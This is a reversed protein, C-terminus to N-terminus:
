YILYCIKVKISNPNYSDTSFVADGEKPMMDFVKKYILEFTASIDRLMYFFAKGEYITLTENTSPEQADSTDKIAEQFNKLKDTYM